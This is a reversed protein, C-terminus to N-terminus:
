RLIGLQRNCFIAGLPRRSPTEDIFLAGIDLAGIGAGIGINDFGLIGVAGLRLSSGPGLGFGAHATNGGWFEAIHLQDGSHSFDALSMKILEVASIETSDVTENVTTKAIVRVGLFHGLFGEYRNEPGNLVIPPLGGKQGPHEPNGFVKRIIRNAAGLILLFSELTDVLFVEDRLRGEPLDWRVFVEGQAAISLRNPASHRFQGIPLATNELHTVQFIHRNGLNSRATM